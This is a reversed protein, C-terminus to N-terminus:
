ELNQRKANNVGALVTDHLREFFAQSRGVEEPKIDFYFTLIRDMEDKELQEIVIRLAEERAEWLGLGTPKTGSADAKIEQLISEVALDTNEFDSVWDQFYAIGINTIEKLANDRNM